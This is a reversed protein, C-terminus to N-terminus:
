ADSAMHLANGWAAQQATNDFVCWVENSRSRSINMRVALKALFEVSYASHYMKPSGHLRYYILRDSGGPSLADPMTAPDAAVRTVGSRRLLAEAKATFWSPHRPECAIQSSSISTITAFFRSVIRSEFVLSAPTQVLIVRLKQGLGEVETLFQQLGIRCHRLACEHTVSRPVKVSFRFNTPTLDHWRAYTTRKHPRHFSSNIEVANFQRAYHELHSHEDARREREAPPNAWAATGVYINGAPMM